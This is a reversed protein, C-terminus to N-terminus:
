AVAAHTEEAGDGAERRHSWPLIADIRTGSGPTSVIRWEGGISDVREQMAVLGLHHALSAAAVDDTDFGAGDDVVTL